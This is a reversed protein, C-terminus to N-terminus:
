GQQFARRVIPWMNWAPLVFNTRLFSALLINVMKLYRSSNVQKQLRCNWVGFQVKTLSCLLSTQPSINHVFGLDIFTKLTRWFSPLKLIRFALQLTHFTDFNCLKFQLSCNAYLKWSLHNPPYRAFKCFNKKKLFLMINLLFTWHSEAKNLTGVALFETNSNRSSNLFNYKMYNLM